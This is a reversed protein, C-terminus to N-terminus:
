SRPAVEGQRQVKGQGEKGGEIEEGREKVEEGTEKGLWCTSHATTPHVTSGGPSHDHVRIM